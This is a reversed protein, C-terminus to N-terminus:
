KKELDYYDWLYDFYNDMSEVFKGKQNDNTQFYLSISDRTEDTPATMNTWLRVCGPKKKHPDHKSLILPMRYEDKYYRIKISGSCDGKTKKSIRQVIENVTFIQGVSDGTQHETFFKYFEKKLDRKSLNHKEKKGLAIMFDEKELFSDDYNNSLFAEAYYDVLVDTQIDYRNKYDDFFHSGVPSAVLIKIDCGRKIAKVLDEEFRSLFGAGSLFCLKIEKPSPNNGYGFLLDIDNKTLKGDDATVRQVGENNLSRGIKQRKVIAKNVFLYMLLSILLAQLIGFALSISKDWYWPLDVFIFLQM